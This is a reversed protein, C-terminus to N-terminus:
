RLDRACRFGIHPATYRAPVLSSALNVKQPLPANYSGGRVRCWSEAATPAPSLLSAFRQVDTPAPTDFQNVFEAVNGAMHLVGYSSAGEPMSNVPAKRSAPSTASQAVNALKPDHADGWPYLRSATGRAAKEWEQSTPLRKGAWKAYAQAEDLSIGAVPEDPAGAPAPKGSEKAYRAYESNSVETKDIYFAPVDVPKAPDGFQIPGAPILAMGLPPSAAPTQSVPQGGPRFVFYLIAVLVLAAIGAYALTRPSLGRLASMWAPGSQIERIKELSERVERMSQPREAPKKAVSRQILEVVSQGVGAQELPAMDIPEQLIKQFVEMLSDARVPHKGTLLEYLLIGFAYVDVTSSTAEGRVQEPSMYSPTGLTFGPQTLNSDATKAIGFDILKVKGQLDVHINDPKIDRHVVGLSHIHELAKAIGLAIDLRNAIPGTEEKQIAHRLDQGRLFEMVMYPCGEVEGFDYIHIINEHDINGATRAERLFRAKADADASEHLIKVAVTRGIASDRGRYVQAMGGGLLEILEYKGFSAPLEM